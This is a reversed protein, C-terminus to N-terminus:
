LRQIELRRSSSRKRRREMVIVGNSFNDVQWKLKLSWSWSRETQRCISSDIRM